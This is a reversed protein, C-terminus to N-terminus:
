DWLIDTAEIYELVGQNPSRENWEFTLMYATGDTKVLNAVMPSVELVMRTDRHEIVIHYEDPVEQIEYLGSTSWTGQQRIFYGTHFSVLLLLVLLLAGNKRWTKQKRTRHLLALLWVLAALPVLIIGISIMEHFRYSFYRYDGVDALREQWFYVLWFVVMALIGLASNVARRSIAYSTKKLVAGAEPAGSATEADQLLLVYMRRCKECEELHERVLKGSAGSCVEDLYLPLLDQVVDCNHIM